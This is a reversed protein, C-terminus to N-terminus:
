VAVFSAGRAMRTAAGVDYVPVFGGDSPPGRGVNSLVKFFRRSAFVFIALIRGMTARRRSSAAGSVAFRPRKTMDERILLIVPRIAQVVVRM